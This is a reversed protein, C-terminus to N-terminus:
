DTKVILVACSATHAVSNPVSGLVRRAGRMGKNGVVIMDAGVAEATGVIANAIPGAVVHGKANVEKGWVAVASDVVEQCTEMLPIDTLDPLMAAPGAAAGGAVAKRYASV